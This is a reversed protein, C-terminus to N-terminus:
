HELTLHRPSFKGTSVLKNRSYQGFVLLLIEGHLVETRITTKLDGTACLIEMKEYSQNKSGAGFKFTKAEPLIRVEKKKWKVIIFGFLDEEM